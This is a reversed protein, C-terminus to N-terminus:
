YRAMRLNISKGIMRLVSLFMGHSGFMGQDAAARVGVGVSLAFAREPLEAGDGLLRGSREAVNGARNALFLESGALGLDDEFLL